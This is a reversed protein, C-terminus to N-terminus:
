SKLAEAVTELLQKKDVPKTLCTYIGLKSAREIIKDPQRNGSIVIFIPKPEGEHLRRLSGAVSFGDWSDDPSEKALEIDLTVLDPQERAQKVATAANHATLVEYGAAKLTDAFLKQIVKDDEVVLIKKAIMPEACNGRNGSQAASLLGWDLGHKPYLLWGYVPLFEAAKFTTFVKLRRADSLEAGGACLTADPRLGHTAELRETQRPAQKSSGVM